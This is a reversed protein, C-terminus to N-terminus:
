NDVWDFCFFSNVRVPFSLRPDRTALRDTVSAEGSLYPGVRGSFTFEKRLDVHGLRNRAGITSEWRTPVGVRKETTITAVGHPIAAKWM